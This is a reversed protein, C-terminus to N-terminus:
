PAKRFSGLNLFRVVSFFIAPKRVRNAREPTEAEV